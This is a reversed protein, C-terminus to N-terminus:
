RVSLRLAPEEDSDDEEFPEDDVPEELLSVADDEDEEDDEDVLLAPDFAAAPQDARATWLAVTRGCRRREGNRAAAPRAPEACAASGGGV